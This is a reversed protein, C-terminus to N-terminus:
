LLHVTALASVVFYCIESASVRFRSLVSLSRRTAFCRKYNQCLKRKSQLRSQVTKHGSIGAFQFVLNHICFKFDLIFVESRFGIFFLWIAKSLKMTSHFKRCFTVLKLYITWRNKILLFNKECIM